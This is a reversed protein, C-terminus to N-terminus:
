FRAAKPVVISDVGGVVWEPLTPLQLALRGFLPVLSHFRQQRERSRIPSKSSIGLPMSIQSRRECVPHFRLLVPIVLLLVLMEHLVDTQDFALLWSSSIRILATAM